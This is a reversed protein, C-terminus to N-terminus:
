LLTLLNRTWERIKELARVAAVRKHSIDESREETDENTTMLYKDRVDSDDRLDNVVRDKEMSETEIDVENNAVDATNETEDINEIQRMEIDNDNLTEKQANVSEITVTDPATVLEKSVENSLKQVESYQKADQLIPEWQVGDEVELPYLHAISRTFITDGVKVQAVRTLGDSSKILSVIKGVKWGERNKDGKLQVLQGEKPILKSTVRPQKLSHSYRERLSPLYRNSFMEKFEELLIRARRWGQVLNTKTSTGQLPINDSATEVSICRDM